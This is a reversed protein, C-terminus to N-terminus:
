NDIKIGGTKYNLKISNWFSIAPGASKFSPGQACCCACRVAFYGDGYVLETMDSRCFPCKRIHEQRIYEKRQKEIFDMMGKMGYGANEPLKM